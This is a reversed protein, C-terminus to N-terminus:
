EATESYYLHFPTDQQSVAIPTYGSGHILVEPLYAEDVRYTLLLILTTLLLLVPVDSLQELPSNTYQIYM